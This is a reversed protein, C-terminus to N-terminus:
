SRHDEISMRLKSVGDRIQREDTGGYGLILGHKPASGLYCTSLPTASIGRSAASKSVAVDDVGPPLMVVLHM